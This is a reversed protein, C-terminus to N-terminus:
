QTAIVTVSAWPRKPSAMQSDFGWPDVTAFGAM